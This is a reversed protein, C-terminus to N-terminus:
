DNTKERRKERYYLWGFLAALLLPFFFAGFNTERMGSLFSILGCVAAFAAFVGLYLYIRKIM